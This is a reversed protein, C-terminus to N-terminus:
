EPRQQRKGYKRGKESREVVIRRCYSEQFKLRSAKLGRPATQFTLVHNVIALACNWGIFEGITQVTHSANAIDKTIKM